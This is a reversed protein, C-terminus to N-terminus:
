GDASPSISFKELLDKIVDSKFPKSIFGDCGVENAKQQYDTLAHATLFVIRPYQKNNNEAKRAQIIRTAELGDMVPMCWDMFILDYHSTATQEIALQGNEVIDINQVDLNVLTRQLVKQNIKNDEAILIKMDSVSRPSKPPSHVLARKGDEEAGSNIEKEINKDSANEDDDSPNNIMSKTIDHEDSKTHIPSVIKDIDPDDFHDDPDFQDGDDFNGADDIKSETSSSNKFLLATKSYSPSPVTSSIPVLPLRVTFECWHGQESDVSVDGGLVKCLQKTIALGLGTGGEAPDNSSSQKFPQFIHDVEDKAIGKGYDKVVFKMESCTMGPYAEVHELTLNMDVFQGNYGYKIANGLLNYLIQQIRRGDTDIYQPLDDTINFRLEVGYKKAKICISKFVPKLVRRIETPGVSIEVRGSALKSYDLVDDVVALLLDGSDTIMKISDEVEPDLPKRGGSASTPKTSQELLLNSLGIICNLPTRIEHSMMAFHQLQAKAHSITKKNAIILQRNAEALDHTRSAVEAELRNTLSQQVIEHTQLRTVTSLADLSQKFVQIHEDTFGNRHKTSWAMAGVFKGRYMMPLALYDNYGETNFWSCGPPVFFSTNDSKEDEGDRRSNRWRRQRQRQSDSERANDITPRRMRYEEARGEMLVDFPEESNTPKEFASAPVDNSTFKKRHEWKWVYASVKPHLMMGGVFLRDVPIRLTRRCFKSYETLLSKVDRLKGGEIFLWQQIKDVIGGVGGFSRYSSNASNFSSSSSSRISSRTHCSSSTNSNSRVYETTAAALPISGTMNTGPSSVLSQFSSESTLMTATTATAVTSKSAHEQISDESAFLKKNVVYSDTHYRRETENEESEGEGVDDECDDDDDADDDDDDDDDYDQYSINSAFSSEVSSDEEEGDDDEDNDTRDADGDFSASISSINHFRIEEENYLDERSSPSKQSNMKPNHDREKEEEEVSSFEATDKQMGASRRGARVSTDIGPSLSRLRRQQQQQQQQEASSSRLSPRSSSLERLGQSTNDKNGRVATSVVVLQQLASIQDQLDKILEDKKKTESHVSRLQVLLSEVQGHMGRCCEKVFPEDEEGDMENAGGVDDRSLFDEQIEDDDDEENNKDRKIEGGTVSGGNHIRRRRKSNSSVNSSNNSCCSHFETSTSSNSGISINGTSSTSSRDRQEQDEEQEEAKEKEKMAEMHHQHALLFLGEASPSKKLKERFGLSSSSSTTTGTGTGTSTSTSTASSASSQAEESVSTTM